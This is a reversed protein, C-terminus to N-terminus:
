DSKVTLYRSDVWGTLEQKLNKFQVNSWGGRDELVTVETDRALVGIKLAEADPEARINLYQVNVVAITPETEETTPEATDAEGQTQIAAITQQLVAVQEELASVRGALQEVLTAEEVSAPETNESYFNWFAYGLLVVVAVWILTKKRDMRYVDYVEKRVIRIRSNALM